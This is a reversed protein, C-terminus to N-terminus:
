ASFERIAPFITKQQFSAKNGIGVVMLTATSTGTCTLLDQNWLLGDPCKTHGVVLGDVCEYFSSCDAPDPFFVDENNLCPNFRNARVVAAACLLIFTEFSRMKGGM